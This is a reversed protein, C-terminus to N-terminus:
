PNAAPAGELVPEIGNGSPGPTSLVARQWGEDTRLLESSPWYELDLRMTIVEEVGDLDVAVDFGREFEFM